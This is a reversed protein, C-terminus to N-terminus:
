GWYACDMIMAVDEVCACMYFFQGPSPPPSSTLLRDFLIKGYVRILLM